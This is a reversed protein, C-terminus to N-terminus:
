YKNIKFSLEIKFGLTKAIENLTAIKPNRKENIWESIRPQPINLKESFERQSLGSIVILQKLIETEM